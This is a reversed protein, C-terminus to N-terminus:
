QIERIAKVSDVGTVALLNNMQNDEITGEYRGEIYRRQDFGANRLGAELIALSANEKPVVHAFVLTM